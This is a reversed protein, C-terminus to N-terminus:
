RRSRRCGPASPIQRGGLRWRAAGSAAVAFWLAYSSLVALAYLPIQPHGALVMFGAAGGGLALARVGSGQRWLEFAYLMLPLWPLTRLTSVHGLNALTFGGLMFVLGGVLAAAALRLARLYLFSFVGILSYHLLISHGYALWEPFILFLASPPYFAGGQMSALLPTGGFLYPEWRSGVEV